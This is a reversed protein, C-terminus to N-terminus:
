YLWRRRAWRYILLGIVIILAAAGGVLGWTIKSLPIEKTSSTSTTGPAASQVTFASAMENVLVQYTKAASRSVNFSLKETAGGALALEKKEQEAGDIRLVVTYKGATGGSNSATASVTVTEGPKAVGPTVTLNSLEFKAPKPASAAPVPTGPPATAGPAPSSAPPPTSGPLDGMVAFQSFHSVGASVSATGTDVASPIPTWNTGDYYAIYLKDEVVGAPVAKRDYKFTVIVPPDFAAGEPGFHYASLMTKNSPPPVPAAAPEASLFYLAGGATTLLRTGANVQITVTEDTSKLQCAAQVKGTTDVLLGALTSSRMGLTYVPTLPNGGGGGPADTIPATYNVTGITLPAPLSAGLTTPDVWLFPFISMHVRAEITEGIVNYPGEQSGGPFALPVDVSSSRSEGINQPIPSTLSYESNLTVQNGSTQHRAIVRGKVTAESISIANKLTATGSVTLQFPMSGEVFSTSLVTTYSIDFYDSASLALAPRAPLLVMGTALILIIRLLSAAARIVTRDHRM